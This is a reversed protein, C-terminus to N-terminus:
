KEGFYITSDISSITYDVWISAQVGPAYGVYFGSAEEPGGPIIGIIIGIPGLSITVGFTYEEGACDESNKM